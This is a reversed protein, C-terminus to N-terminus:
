QQVRIGQVRAKCGTEFGVYSFTCELKLLQTEGKDDKVRVDVAIYGDGDSDTTSGSAGIFEYGLDNVYDKASEKVANKRQGRTCGGMALAVVILLVFVISGPNHFLWEVWELM